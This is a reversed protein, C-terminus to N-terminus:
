IECIGELKQGTTGHLRVSLCPSALLWKKCNQSRGELLEWVILDDM